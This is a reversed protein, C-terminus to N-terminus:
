TEVDGSATERGWVECPPRPNFAMLNSLWGVLWGALRCFIVDLPVELLIYKLTPHATRLLIHHLSFELSSPPSAAAQPSPPPCERSHTDAWHSAKSGQAEQTRHLAVSKSRRCESSLPLLSCNQESLPVVFWISQKRLLLVVASTHWHFVSLRLTLATQVAIINIISYNCSINNRLFVICLICKSVLKNFAEYIPVNIVALLYWLASHAVAVNFYQRLQQQPHGRCM